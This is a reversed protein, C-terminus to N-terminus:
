GTQCEAESSRVSLVKVLLADVVIKARGKTEHGCLVLFRCRPIEGRMM